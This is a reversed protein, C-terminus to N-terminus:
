ISCLCVMNRSFVRTEDVNEKMMGVQLGNPGQSAHKLAKRVKEVESEANEIYGVVRHPHLKIVM